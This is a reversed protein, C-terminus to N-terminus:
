APVSADATVDLPLGLRLETDSRAKRQRAFNDKLEDIRENRISNQLAHRQLAIQAVTPNLVLEDEFTSYMLVAQRKVRAEILSPEGSGTNAYAFWEARDRDMTWSFGRQQYRSASSVGRWATVEDPLSTFVELSEPDMLPRAPAVEFMRIVERESLNARFMMSGVKGHPWALYLAAAWLAPHLKGKQFKEWLHLTYILKATDPIMTWSDSLAGFDGKVGKAYLADFTELRTAEPMDFSKLVMDDFADTGLTAGVTAARNTAYLESGEDATAARRAVTSNVGAPQLVTVTGDDNLEANLDSFFLRLDKLSGHVFSRWRASNFAAGDILWTRSM